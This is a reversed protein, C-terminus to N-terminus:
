EPVSRPGARDTGSRVHNVAVGGATSFLRQRVVRQWHRDDFGTLAHIYNNMAGGVM